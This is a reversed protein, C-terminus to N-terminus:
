GFVYMSQRSLAIPRGAPSSVMVSQSTYGDRAAVLEADLRWGTPPLDDLRDGIIELMWTMSGGMVRMPLMSFAIPPMYDSLALVHAETVPGTDKMTLDVVHMREQDGSLPPAGRLWRGQFHQACSPTLGPVLRFPIGDNDPRPPPEPTISIVSARATGFVGLMLALTQDGDAADVIRAEVHTAHKGTRLIRARAEIRGTPVPGIFTTQLTRLPVDAPVLTRMARLAIAAQLGGFTTRGVSWDEPVDITTTGQGDTASRMLRSFPTIM